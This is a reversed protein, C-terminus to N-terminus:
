YKKNLMIIIQNKLIKEEIFYAMLIIMSNRKSQILIVMMLLIGNNNQKIQCIEHGFSLDEGQRINKAFLEYICDEKQIDYAEDVLDSINILEDPEIIVKNRVLYRELTFIFIQPIKVFKSISKLSVNKKCESCKMIAM